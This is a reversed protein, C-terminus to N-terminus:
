GFLGGLGKSLGSFLDGADNENKKGSLLDFMGDISFPSDDADKENLLNMVFPILLEVVKNAMSQSLGVQEGLASVVKQSINTVIANQAINETGGKVLNSLGSFNGSMLEDKFGSLLTETGVKVSKDAKDADLGISQMLQEELQDKVTESFMSTLKDLM